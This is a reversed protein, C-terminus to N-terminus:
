ERGLHRHLENAINDFGPTAPMVGVVGGCDTVAEATTPGIAAITLNELDRKMCWGAVASPSAFAVADVASDTPAIATSRYAVRAFIEIRAAALRDLVRRDAQDSHPFLLRGTWGSDVLLDVLRDSGADGVLISRGGAQEVAEATARGVSVFPTDPADDTWVSRVVRPSTAMVRDVSVALSRIEALEDASVPTIGVCPISEVTFGLDTFPRAADAFGDVPVTIGVRM